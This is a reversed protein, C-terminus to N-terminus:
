GVLYKLLSPDAKIEKKLISLVERIDGIKVQSKNGEKMAIKSALLNLLKRM